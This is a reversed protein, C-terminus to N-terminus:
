GERESLRQALDFPERFPLQIGPALEVREVGEVVQVPEV